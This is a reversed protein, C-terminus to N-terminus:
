NKECERKMKQKEYLSMIGTTKNLLIGHRWSDHGFQPHFKSLDERSIINDQIWEM